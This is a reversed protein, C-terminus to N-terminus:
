GLLLPSPLLVSEWLIHIGTGLPRRQSPQVESGWTIQKGQVALWASRVGGLERLRGETGGEVPLEPLESTLM